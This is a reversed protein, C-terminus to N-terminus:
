APLNALNSLISRWDADDIEIPSFVTVPSVYRILDARWIVKALEKSVQRQLDGLPRIGFPLYWPADWVDDVRRNLDAATTAVFPTTFFHGESCYLIGLSGVRFHRSAKAKAPRSDNAIAWLRAEIGIGINKRNISSFCFLLM